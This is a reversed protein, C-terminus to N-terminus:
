CGAGIVWYGIIDIRGHKMKQFHHILSIYFHLHWSNFIALIKSYNWKLLIIFPGPVLKWDGANLWFMNSINTMCCVLIQGLKM